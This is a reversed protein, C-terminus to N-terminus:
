NSISCRTGRCWSPRHTTKVSKTSQKDDRIKSTSLYNNPKHQFKYDLWHKVSDSFLTKSIGPFLFVAEFSIAKRPGVLASMEFFTSSTVFITLSSVPTRNWYYTGIANDFVFDYGLWVDKQVMKNFGMFKAAEANNVVIIEPDIQRIFQDTIKLQEWIFQIGVEKKLLEDICNHKTERFFLLNLHAWPTNCYEAIEEFLKFYPTEDKDREQNYIKLSHGKKESKPPQLGLFLISKKPLEKPFVFSRPLSDYEPHGILDCIFQNVTEYLPIKNLAKWTNSCILQAFRLVCESLRHRYSNQHKDSIIFCM